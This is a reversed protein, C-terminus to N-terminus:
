NLYMGYPATVFHKQLFSMIRQKKHDNYAKYIDDILKSLLKCFNYHIHMTINSAIQVAVDQIDKSLFPSNTLDRLTKIFVAYRM